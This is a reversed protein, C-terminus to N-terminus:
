SGTNNEERQSTITTQHSPPSPFLFSFSSSYPSFPVPLFPFLTSLPLSPLFLLTLTPLPIFSVPLLSPFFSSFPSLSSFSLSPFFSPCSVFSPLAPGASYIFLFFFM